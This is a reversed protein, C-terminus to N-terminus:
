DATARVGTAEALHQNWSAACGPGCRQLWRPLTTGTLISRRIVEDAASPRVAQMQGPRGGTCRRDGINCLVGAETERVAEDWVAQEVKPLERLLLQRLAEPLARWTAGHAVFVSLGWTVAMTHIHTTAEHLGITNGSMTGTIACDVNGARVNAVIENFETRVARGGLAEVWDAQTPSAIRVTRGRLGGLGALPQRCFLVQAPYAYVALLEAGHRERLLAALRPRFAAVSRRLADADPNLGALDPAGLEADKPAAQSLLLTGFPVTGLRVMSLLEQGRIGARDFPVIDAVFRGGSLQSLRQTWFPAEHRTYQNLSGLGGVIRLRLPPAAAGAPQAEAPQAEAPQAGAPAALGVALALVM